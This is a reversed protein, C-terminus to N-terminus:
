FFSSGFDQFKQESSFLKCLFPFMHLSSAIEWKSFINADIGYKALLCKKDQDNLANEDSHLFVVNQKNTFLFFKKLRENRYVVERCTM